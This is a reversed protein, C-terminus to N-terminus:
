RFMRKVRQWAFPIAVGALAPWIFFGSPKPQNKEEWWACAAKLEIIRDAALALQDLLAQKYKHM